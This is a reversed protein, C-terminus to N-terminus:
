FEYHLGITALKKEFKFDSMYGVDVLFGDKITYRGGALWTRTEKDGLSEVGFAFSGAYYILAEAYTISSDGTTYGLNVDLELPGFGRTLIGNLAYASGGIEATFSAAFLDPVLSYKLAFEAPVFSNKPESIVNFGFGIGIDMKETLGHKFGLGFAGTEEWLDYGLELEYTGVSVTGADDTGFPRAGYLNAIIGVMIFVVTKLLKQM